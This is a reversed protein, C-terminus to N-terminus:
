DNLIPFVYYRLFTPVHPEFHGGNNGTWRMSPDWKHQRLNQYLRADDANCAIPTFGVRGAAAAWRRDATGVIDTGLGLVLWDRESYFVDIGRRATRLAPRLDYETSVSPALLILHDISCPPLEDAAALVVGSGASHAILNVTSDPNTRHYALIREALCHGAARINALDTQDAYIRLKGHSWEVKEVCWPLREEEVLQRVNGSTVDYNGAGDAVFIIRNSGVCSPCPSAYRMTPRTTSCGALLAVSLALLFPRFFPGSV